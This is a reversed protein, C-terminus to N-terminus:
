WTKIKWDGFYVSDVNRRANAIKPDNYDDDADGHVVSGPRTSFTSDGRPPGRRRSSSSSCEALDEFGSSRGLSPSRGQPHRNRKKSPSKPKSYPRLPSIANTDIWEEGGDQEGLYRVYCQTGDRKLVQVRGVRRFRANLLRTLSLSASRVNFVM